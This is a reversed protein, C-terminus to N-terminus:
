RGYCGDADTHGERQRSPHDQKSQGAESAGATAICGPLIHLDGLRDPKSTKTPENTKKDRLYNLLYPASQAGHHM